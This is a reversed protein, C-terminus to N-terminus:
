CDMEKNQLQISNAFLCYKAFVFTFLFLVALLFLLSFYFYEYSVTVDSLKLAFFVTVSIITSSVLTSFILEFRNKKHPNIYMGSLYHVFLCYFPFLLLSTLYNYNPILIHINDLIHIDNITKRFIVFAVWVMLAALIDYIIYKRSLSNKNM